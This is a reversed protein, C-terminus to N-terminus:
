VCAFGDGDGNKKVARRLGPVQCRRNDYSMLVGGMWVPDARILSRWDTPAGRATSEGFNGYVYVYIVTETNENRPM